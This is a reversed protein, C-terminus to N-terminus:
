SRYKLLHVTGCQLDEIEVETAMTRSRQDANTELRSISVFSGYEEESRGKGKRGRHRKATWYQPAASADAVEDEDNENDLIAGHEYMEAPYAPYASLYQSTSAEDRAYPLSPPEAAM